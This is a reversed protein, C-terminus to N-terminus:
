HLTPAPDCAHTAAFRMRERERERERHLRQVEAEARQRESVAAQLQRLAGLVDDHRQQMWELERRLARCEATLMKHEPEFSMIANQALGVAAIKRDRYM